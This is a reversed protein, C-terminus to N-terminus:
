SANREADSWAMYKGLYLEKQPGSGFEQTRLYESLCRKTMLGGDKRYIMVAIKRLTERFSIENDAVPKAYKTLADRIDQAYMEKLKNGNLGVLRSRKYMEEFPKPFIDERGDVVGKVENMDEGLKHFKVFAKADADGEQIREAIRRRMLVIIEDRSLDTPEKKFTELAFAMEDIVDKVNGYVDSYGILARTLARERELTWFSDKFRAGDIAVANKAADGLTVGTDGVKPVAAKINTEDKMTAPITEPITSIIHGQVESLGDGIEEVEDPVMADGGICKVIEQAARIGTEYAGHVCQWGLDSCHEGAFFLYPHACDRPEPTTFEDIMSWNSGCPMYSYSGLAYSDQDWRTVVYEEPLPIDDWKILRPGPTIGGDGIGITQDAQNKNCTTDKEDKVDRVQDKVVPFGCLKCVIAGEGTTHGVAVVKTVELQKHCNECINLQHAMHSRAAAKKVESPVRDTDDENSIDCFMGTLTLMVEILVGEDAMNWHGKAFGSEAFLHVLLVGTKGYSHLNFFQFRSDLCNLQPVDPPWFVDDEKFRLVIKNHTGMGMGRIAEMKPESLVPSFSICSEENEDQLVGLPVTVVVIDGHFIEGCRTSVLITRTQVEPDSDWSSLSADSTSEKRKRDAGLSSLSADSPSRKRKRSRTPTGTSDIEDPPDPPPASVPARLCKSIACVSKGLRINIGNKLNDILFPTYGDLVIRDGPGGRRSAITNRPPHQSSLVNKEYRSAQQKISSATMVPVEGPFPPDDEEYPVGIIADVGTTEMGASAQMLAMSSMPACYGMSRARIKELLALETENFTRNLQESIYEVGCNFVSALDAAGDDSQSAVAATYRSAMFFLHHADVITESPIRKGTTHDYWIAHETSEYFGGGAVIPARIRDQIARRFVLHNDDGCGHMISAGIDVSLRRSGDPNLRPPSVTGRSLDHFSHRYPCKANVSPQTADEKFDSGNQLQSANNSTQQAGSVDASSKMASIPFSPDPKSVFQAGTATSYASAHSQPLPQQQQHQNVSPHYTDPHLSNANHSAPYVHVPHTTASSAENQQVMPQSPTINSGSLPHDSYVNSQSASPPNASYTAEHDIGSLWHTLVRGGVRQRAELVTVQLDLPSSLLYQACSLGSVGAGVIIVQRTPASDVTPPLQSPNSSMLPVFQVCLTHPLLQARHDAYVPVCYRVREDFSSHEVKPERVRIFQGNM